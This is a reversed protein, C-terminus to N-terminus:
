LLILMVRTDVVKIDSISDVTMFLDKLLMLREHYSNKTLGHLVLDKSSKFLM